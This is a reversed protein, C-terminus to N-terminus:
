TMRSSSAMSRRAVKASSSVSPRTPGARGASLPLDVQGTGCEVVDAREALAARRDAPADTVTAILPRYSPEAFLRQDPDLGLSATVIVLLPRSAQNRRARAARVPETGSGPAKYDELRVTSAGVVIADAVSRLAVFVELDAPGGLGGSVGDLATAGDASSIM